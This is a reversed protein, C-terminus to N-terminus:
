SWNQVSKRGDAYKNVSWDGTWQSSQLLILAVEVLVQGDRVVEVLWTPNSALLLGALGASPSM